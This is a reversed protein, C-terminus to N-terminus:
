FTFGLDLGVRPFIGKYGYSMLGNNLYFNSNNDMNSTRVGGGVFADLVFRRAFTWNVGIVVGAGFSNVKYRYEEQIQNLYNYYNRNIVDAYQDFVFPAFYLKRSARNTERQLVFYRFQFEGRYGSVSENDSDKYTLGASFNLSKDKGVLREYSLQFTSTFFSIPNIKISNRYAAPESIQDQAVVFLYSFSLLIVLNFKRM